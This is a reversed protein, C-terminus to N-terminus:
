KELELTMGCSAALKKAIDKDEKTWKKGHQAKLIYYEADHIIKNGSNAWGTTILTISFVSLLGIKMLKSM